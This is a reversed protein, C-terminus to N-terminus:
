GERLGGIAAFEEEGLLMAPLTERGTLVAKLLRHFGDLIVTRGRWPCLHVPYALDARMAREHQHALVDPAALVDRPSVAFHRGYAQWVRLDLLWGLEAVAVDRVPLRLKHLADMRWGGLPLADRVEPPAIAALGELPVFPAPADAPTM